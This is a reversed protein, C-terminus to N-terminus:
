DDSDTVITRWFMRRLVDMDERWRFLVAFSYTKKLTTMVIDAVGKKKGENTDKRHLNM